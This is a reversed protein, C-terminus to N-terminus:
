SKVEFPGTWYASERGLSDVRAVAAEQSAGCGCSSCLPCPKLDAM